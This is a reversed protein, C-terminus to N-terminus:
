IKTLGKTSEIIPMKERLIKQQNNKHDFICIHDHIHNGCYLQNCKCTYIDIYLKNIKRKCTKCCAM